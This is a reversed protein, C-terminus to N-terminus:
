NDQGSPFCKESGVVRRNQPLRLLLWLLLIHEVQYSGEPSHSGQEVNDVAMLIQVTSGMGASPKGM